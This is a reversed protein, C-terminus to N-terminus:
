KVLPSPTTVRKPPTTTFSNSNIPSNPDVPCSITSGDGAGSAAPMANCLGVSTVFFL